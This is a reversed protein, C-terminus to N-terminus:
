QRLPIVVSSKITSRYITSAHDKTVRVGLLPEAFTAEINEVISDANATTFRFPITLATDPFSHWRFTVSHETKSFAWPSAADVLEHGPSSYSVKLTYPRYITRIHLLLEVVGSADPAISTISRTVTLWKKEPPPLDGLMVEGTRASITSDIGAVSITTGSLYDNSKVIISGTGTDLDLTQNVEVPQKWLDTHSPLVSLAGACILFAAGAVLFGSSRRFRKLWFYDTTSDFRIAAFGLLFPFSWLSFFLIYFLHAVISVFLSRSQGALSHAILGLGESFALHFMLHASAFWLIIRLIPQQIFVACSLLFLATAPYFAVKTSGFSGILIFLSLFVFARFFYRAPNKSLRLKPALQLSIWIGVLGGLFGLALYGSIDGWWPYRVGKILGVVNESLWVCVQIVLMLLFLKLGPLVPEKQQRPIGNGETIQLFADATRKRILLYATIGLLVTIVIFSRLLWLPVFLPKSGVQYLFYQETKPEPVGGDFREVLKYVLDGSRKLGSVKFNEFSDQPTHIPDNMDSTFDIAPIGRRLFPMHDSGVGGGPLTSNLAFFHTPYSLGEYGLAAYEQYAASVLWAPASHERIDPFPILWDTGNAMDVQLMLAVSDIKPFHDVFYKSGVLGQEEGGFLAFVITSENRRQALVRALEIVVASGSGDDNAGPIDPGASDIHGGIVIIRNGAGKLVAVAVGTRTNVAEQSPESVVRDIPMIYAEHLGFEKFKQVAFEMARRENPSGMPRPGIEVSLMKLYVTSSDLSFPTQAHLPTFLFVILLISFRYKM